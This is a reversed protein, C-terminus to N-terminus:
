GKVGEVQTSWRCKKRKYIPVVWRVDSVISGDAFRGSKEELYTCVLLKENGGGSNDQKWVRNTSM